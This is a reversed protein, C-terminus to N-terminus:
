IDSPCQKLFESKGFNGPAGGAGVISVIMMKNYYMNKRRIHRNLKEEKNADEGFVVTKNKTGLLM